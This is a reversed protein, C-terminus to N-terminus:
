NSSDALKIPTDGNAKFVVLSEGDAGTLEQRQAFHDKMVRELLWEKSKVQKSTKKAWDSKANDIQESFDTDDKRWNTITDDTRGIWGAALKIVPLEKYYELFKQKLELNKDNTM